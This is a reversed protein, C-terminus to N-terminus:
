AHILRSPSITFRPTALLTALWHLAVAFVPPHGYGCGPCSPDTCEGDQVPGDDSPDPTSSARLRTIPEAASFVVKSTTLNMWWMSTIPNLGSLTQM